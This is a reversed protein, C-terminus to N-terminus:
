LKKQKVTTCPFPKLYALYYSDGVKTM